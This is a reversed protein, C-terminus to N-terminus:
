LDYSQRNSVNLTDDTIIIKESNIKKLYYLQGITRILYGAINKQECQDILAHNNRDIDPLAIYLPMDKEACQAIYIDIKQLLAPYGEVYIRAIGTEFSLAARMQEETSVLVALEKEISIREKKPLALQIKALRRYYAEPLEQLMEEIASRRLANLASVPVFIDPDIEIVTEVFNLQFPTGGSKSIQTIIKESSMPQNEAAQASEGFAETTTGTSEHSLTLVIPEGKHIRVAANLIMQRTDKQFIRKAEDSLAKDFSKYVADGSEIEGRITVTVRDGASSKKDIGTGTHPQKKTWIEIGDGPVLPEETLIVCEGTGSHYSEVKGLYLGIHKPSKTSMMAKGSHSEFYGDSFGGRNFIQLLKKEDDGKSTIKSLRDHYAKTTLAVYEPTKMRGEIKFSTVGAEIMKELLDLTMIDKPSLLHGSAIAQGDKMLEYNLRCPQACKGRNGSRGGIFSSMLCRGSYCVCLAGHVFCELEATSGAKITKIEDLSLERSLVVRSFGMAELFLVDSLNHATMQTSAHLPIEPFYKKIVAAAGIDQVILADAGYAYVDSLFDLLESLEDDKYITNVTIYVKVGRLHCYDIIEGIQANDFNEASSRASFAKGGIYVANCGAAVAAYVSEIGGAPSLLELKQQSIKNKEM